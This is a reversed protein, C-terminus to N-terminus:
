KEPSELREGEEPAHSEKEEEQPKQRPDKGHPVIEGIGVVVDRVHRRGNEGRAEHKEREDEDEEADQQVRDVPSEELEVAHQRPSVPLRSTGATAGARM